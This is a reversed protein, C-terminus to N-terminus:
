RIPYGYREVAESDESRALNPYDQDTPLSVLYRRDFAHEDGFRLLDLAHRIRGLPEDDKTARGGVQGNLLDVLYGAAERDIHLPIVEVVQIRDWDRVIIQTLERDADEKSNFPGSLVRYAGPYNANEYERIEFLPM